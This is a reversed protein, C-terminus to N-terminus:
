AKPEEESAPAAEAPAADAPAADETAPAEAVVEETAEVEAPAEAEAKLAAAANAEAEAAAIIAKEADVKKAIADEKKKREADLAAKKVASKSDNLKAVRAIRAEEKSKLWAAFKEDAAEQTIAGKVVGVQLHKQYMIGEVSLIKRATDTPQAGVMLWHLARDGRLNLSAPTNNPNYQGIKEIFKGDRPARVDAVVIDYIPMKKRGKRSLRIKVAM